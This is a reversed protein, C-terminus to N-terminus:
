RENTHRKLHRLVSKGIHEGLKPPVANGIQRAIKRMNIKEDEDIFQYEIPFSQLLAGERLSIARDQEPHGFRGTGYNIFQTTLTPAVDDWSMRGYVSKYSQGSTKKYCNPLLEEDWDHWSGGQKSQKIRKINIDTLMPSIHLRDKKNDTIGAKIKDIKFIVDKVTLKKEHSEAFEIDGFKSALLLLRKRRQAVGYDSADHIKFKVSYGQLKLNDVFDAFVREKRLEPVNEMSVIQPSTQEVLRLFDYLLGWDKHSSRNKKNKQHTSFPQCPACGVLIKIDTDGFLEDIEESTVENVSKHIFIGHNNREYAFKCSEDLDIGAVVNIGSKSLGYTLGGIGCFLDIAAIKM